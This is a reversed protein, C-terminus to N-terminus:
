NKFREKMTESDQRAADTVKAASQGLPGTRITTGKVAPPDVSMTPLISALFSAGAMPWLTTTSFMVPPPDTTPMCDTALPVDSPLLYNRGDIEVGHGAYYVVAEDGPGISASFAAIAELFGIQDPGEVLQVQFGATTLAAKVARADNVAKELSPVNQYADIGVVLAHRGEASATAIAGLLMALCLCVTRFIKLSAM